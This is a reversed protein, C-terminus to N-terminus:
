HLNLHIVGASALGDLGLQVAVGALLFGFVKETIVMRNVDLHESVRNAWRLVAVDILIVVALLGLMVAFVAASKAEASITVLVVVGVPNLLYPVALPYRALQLPDRGEVSTQDVDSKSSGLVMPVSMVLLIIGSAIALADSSFHLLRTLFGGLVLLIMAVVSATTLMRRVVQKKTSESMQATIQLYPVLAIKPGIGILLLLFTDFIVAADLSNFDMSTGEM